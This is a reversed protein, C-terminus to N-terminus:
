YKVMLEKLKEEVLKLLKLKVNKLYFNWNAYNEGFHPHAHGHGGGGFFGTKIPALYAGKTGAPAEIEIIYKM